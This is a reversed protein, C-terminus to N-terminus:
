LGAPLKAECAKLDPDPGILDVWQAGALQYQLAHSPTAEEARVAIIEEGYSVVLRVERPVYHSAKANGSFILVMKETEDIVEAM